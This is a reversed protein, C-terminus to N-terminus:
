ANIVLSKTKIIRVISYLFLGVPGLMIMILLCPIVLFRNINQQLTDRAVWAGVFLDFVIYHVWGALFAKPTAFLQRAGELTLPNAEPTAGDDTAQLGIYLVGLLIPIFFSHVFLQTFKWNPAVILLLWAPLVGITCIRYLLETTM